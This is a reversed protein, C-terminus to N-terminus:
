SSASARWSRTRPIGGGDSSRSSWCVPPGALLVAPIWWQLAVQFAAIIVLAGALFAEIVATALDVSVLKLMYAAREGEMKRLLWWKVAPAAYHNALSATM